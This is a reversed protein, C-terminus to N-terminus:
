GYPLMRRFHKFLQELLIRMRELFIRGVEDRQSVHYIVEEVTLSTPIQSVSLFLFKTNPASVKLREYRNLTLKWLEEESYASVGYTLLSSLSEEIAPIVKPQRRVFDLVEELTFPKENIFILPVHRYATHRALFNEVDKVRM